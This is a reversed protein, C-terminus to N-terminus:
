SHARANPKRDPGRPARGALLRAAAHGPDKLPRKTLQLKGLNGAGCPAAYKCERCRAQVANSGM